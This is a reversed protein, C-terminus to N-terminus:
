SNTVCLNYMKRIKDEHREKDIRGGEPDIQFELVRQGNLNIEWKEELWVDISM